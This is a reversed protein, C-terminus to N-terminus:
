EDVWEERMAKLSFMIINKSFLTLWKKPAKGWCGLGGFLHWDEMIPLADAAPRQLNVKFFRRRNPPMFEPIGLAGAPSEHTPPADAAPRM